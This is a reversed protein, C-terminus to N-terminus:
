LERLRAVMDHELHYQQLNIFAPRRHGSEPLLNFEYVKRDKFFVKGRNWQVGKEVLRRGIGLRDSIQLTRQAFCIARSGYSVKDNDDLLVVPVGRQGLDIAAALGVPGAGIVVVPHRVPSPADQDPSRAYAYLPIKFIQTM